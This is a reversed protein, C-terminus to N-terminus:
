CFTQRAFEKQLIAHNKGLTYERGLIHAKEDCASKLLKLQISLFATVMSLFSGQNSFWSFTIIKLSLYAIGYSINELLDYQWTNDFIFSKSSFQVM